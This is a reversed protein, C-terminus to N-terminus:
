WGMVENYADIGNLMGEEMAIEHRWYEHRAQNFKTRNQVEYYSPGILEIYMSPNRGKEADFFARAESENAFDNGHSLDDNGDDPHSFWFNVSWALSCVRPVLKCPTRNYDSTSCKM